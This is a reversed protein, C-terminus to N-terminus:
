AAKETAGVASFNEKFLFKDLDHLAFTSYAHMM